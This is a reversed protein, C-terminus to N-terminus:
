KYIKDRAAIELVQVILVKRQMECVARWDGHVVFRWRGALPGTLAKGLTYPDASATLRAFLADASERVPKDLKTYQKEATRSLRVQWSM